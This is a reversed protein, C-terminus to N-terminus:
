EKSSEGERKSKKGLIGEALGAADLGFQDHVAVLSRRTERGAYCCERIVEVLYFGFLIFILISAGSAKNQQTDM